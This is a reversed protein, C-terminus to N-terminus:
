VHGPARGAQQPGDVLVAVRRGTVDFVELTVDSSVPLQYGIVTVPNFPNPYNQHLEVSRPLDAHHSEPENSVSLQKLPTSEGTETNVELLEEKTLVYLINSDPKKYLGTIEIDLTKLLEFSSGYDLSAQLELSDSVFVRQPNLQDIAYEFYKGSRITDAATGSDRDMKLLTRFHRYDVRNSTYILTTDEFTSFDWSRENDTMFDTSLLTSGTESHIFLSDENQAIYDSSYQDIDYVFFPQVLSDPIENLDLYNEQLLDSDRPVTLSTLFNIFAEFGFIFHDTDPDHAVNPIPPILGLYLDIEKFDTIVAYAEFGAYVSYTIFSDPHAEFFEIDKTNVGILECFNDQGNFNRIQLSDSESWTDFHYINRDRHITDIQNYEDTEPDYVACSSSKEDYIRYFLHTNESDDEMGNLDYFYREQAIASLTIASFFLLLLLKKM